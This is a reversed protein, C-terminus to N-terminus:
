FSWYVDLFPTVPLASVKRDILRDNDLWYDTGIVNDRNFLNTVGAELRLNGQGLAWSRQAKFDVTLFHELRRDNRVVPALLGSDDLALATTPWGSHYSSEVSLQWDRLQWTYGMNAAHKQDNSRRVDVGNVVEEVDARSYSLWFESSEFWATMSVEIGTATVAEPQVRTRDAQLEPVLSTPDTLNGFYATSRDADKRYGEIRFEKNGYSFHYSGVLHYSEQAREFTDAGDALHLEHVGQAQYYEGFSLRLEGGRPLQYMLGLRPTTQETWRDKLYDQADLRVGAELYLSPLVERKLSLYLAVQQGDFERDLQVFRPRAYNPLSAFRPDILSDHVVDYEAELYRWSLGAQFLSDGWAFERQHELLYARYEKDEELSGSVIGPRSVRGKRDDKIATVAFRTEVEHGRESEQNLTVWFYTSGYSSDAEERRYSDNVSIDDGFWLLSTSLTANKLPTTAAVYLDSFAPKGLETDLLSGILDITSRRISFLYDTEHMAGAQLYSMNYLGVGLERTDDQSDPAVPEIEMVGSMRDGYNAPFGGTMFNIGGINRTDIVSFLDNFQHLHFPNYLRIGDFMILTENPLGGRVSSRSSVGNNAMGPLRASVRFADNAIAPRSALNDRDLFTSATIHNLTFEHLSSHVVIEELLPEVNLPEPEAPQRALRPRRTVRYGEAESGELRLGSATLAEAVKDLTIPLEPDYTVRFRPRVLSTSFLIKLGQDNASELYRALSVTEGAARASLALVM